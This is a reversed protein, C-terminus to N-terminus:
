DGKHGGTTLFDRGSDHSVHCRHTSAELNRDRTRVERHLKMYGAERPVDGSAVRIPVWLDVYFVVQANANGKREGNLGKVNKGM